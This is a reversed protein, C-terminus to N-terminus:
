EYLKQVEGQLLFVVVPLQLRAPLFLDEPASFVKM